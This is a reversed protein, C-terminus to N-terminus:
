FINILISEKHCKFFKRLSVIERFLYSSIERFYEFKAYNRSILIVKKTIEYKAFYFM